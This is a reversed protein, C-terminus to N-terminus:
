ADSGGSGLTAEIEGIAARERESVQQGGERHAAAVREALGLTFRRYDELEEPTAKSELLQVVQRLEGLGHERLEDLSRHRTRDVKPKTSVVEDLLESEGHQKRAETYAKAMSFSERISGGRDAMLVMMGATTPGELVLAWEEETFDAKTTM